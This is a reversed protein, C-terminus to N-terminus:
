IPADSTLSGEIDTVLATAQCNDPGARGPRATDRSIFRHNSQDLQPWDLALRAPVQVSADGSSGLGRPAVSCILKLGRCIM